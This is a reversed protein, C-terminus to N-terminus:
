AFFSWEAIGAAADSVSTVTLRIAKVERRVERPHFDWGTIEEEFLPTWTTGDSTTEIHYGYYTSDKQFRLRMLEVWQVSPFTVTIVQPLTDDDAMWWTADDGDTLNTLPYRAHSGTAQVDSPALRQMRAMRRSMEDPREIAGDEEKGKMGQCAGKVKALTAPLVEVEATGDELGEAVATIRVTGAETATRILAFGIGGEARQHEVGIRPVDKGILTGAGSVSLHLTVDADNVLTGNEDVVKFWVPIMDSGDAIPAVGRLDAVVEIRHPAEPTRISHTCALAGKLYGEAKIEGAEYGGADFIYIPNGWREVVHPCFAIRDERTQAGIFTGNRYLRVSDCNSFVTIATTSSAFDPSSNFSAVFVMPGTELAYRSTSPKAYPSTMSRFYHYGYKPWRNIDVVGSYCIDRDAGRNYDNYSWLFHGGMAPNADLMCWDFYGQGELFRIRETVQLLQQTEDEAISVRPKWGVGDGWERTLQPRLSLFDELVNDMVDGSAPYGAVMKYFVEYFPLLEDDGLYDSASFFQNGPYEEHVARSIRAVTEIPYGTENLTTEWLFVSPHNRDRRVMKRGVDELRDSFIPDRNFFQWGPICEIVLLGIEDCADLFSPDHPYHTARVANFGGRKMDIADRLQMSNSAADGVHPFAEHRNGGVLYLHKGNLFFGKEADFTLTRIGIRQQLEDVVDEGRVIRSVLTYLYPEDTTWLMPRSVAFRQILTLTDGCVFSCPCMEEAVVRNDADLLQTLLQADTAGKGGAMETQVQVTALSDTVLPYTVFVGGGAVTNSELPDTIHLPETVVMHVDRYIGGYYYFDLNRQRKGPPTLPDGGGEVRVALVNNRGWRVADTIDVNFGMYGGYHTSLLSDNVWVQCNTMVGEFSIVIRKGKYSYPVRFDRHYWGIGEYIVDDSCHRKELQMVHPIAVPMWLAIDLDSRWGDATDGRLFAWGTNMDLM